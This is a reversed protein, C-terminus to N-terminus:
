QDGRGSSIMGMLGDEIGRERYATAAGNEGNEEHRRPNM